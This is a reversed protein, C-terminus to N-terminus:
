HIHQVLLAMAVSLSYFFTLVRWSHRGARLDATTHQYLNVIPKPM